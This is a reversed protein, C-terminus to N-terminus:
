DLINNGKSTNIRFPSLHSKLGRYDVSRPFAALQLKNCIPIASTVFNCSVTPSPAGPTPALFFIVSVPLSRPSEGLFCPLLFINVVSPVSFVSSHPAPGRTASPIGEDLSM